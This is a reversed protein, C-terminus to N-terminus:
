LKSLFSRSKLMELETSLRATKIKEETLLDNVVRFEEKYQKIEAQLIFIQDSLQDQFEKHKVSQQDVMAKVTTILENIEYMPVPPQRKNDEMEEEEEMNIGDLSNLDVGNISNLGGSEDETIDTNEGQRFMNLGGIIEAEKYDNKEPMNISNLSNLDVGNSSNLGGGKYEPMGLNDGQRFVDLGGSNNDEIFGIIKEVERKSLARTIEFRNKFANFLELENVLVMKVQKNCKEGVTAKLKNSKIYRAVGTTSIGFVLSYQKVTLKYEM